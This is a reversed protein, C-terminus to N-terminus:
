YLYVAGSESASSNGEVPFRRAGGLDSPEATDGAALTKGDGSIAVSTWYSGLSWETGGLRTAAVTRGTKLYAAQAWGSSARKFVYLAGSGPSSTDAGNLVADGMRAASDELPAGAVLTQGDASLAVALGFRHNSRTNTGQVSATLQWGMADRDFVHVSGGGPAGAALVKGDASFALAAGFDTFPASPDNTAPSAIQVPMVWDPGQRTFVHIAGNTASDAPDSVALTQGDPAIAVARGFALSTSTTALASMPAWGSDELRSAFAGVGASTGAVVTRGDASVAVRWGFGAEAPLTSMGQGPRFSQELRYSAFWRRFVYVAGTESSEGQAGVVVTSGDASVAVSSGFRGNIASAPSNLTGNLVWQGDARAYVRVEGSRLPAGNPTSANVGVVLTDGDQSLAVASGFHENTVPADAKLFGMTDIVRPAVAASASSCGSGDCARVSFRADPLGYLEPPPTYEKTVRADGGPAAIDGDVPDAPLPGDGDPDLLLQYFSAGPLADWSFSYRKIGATFGLGAPAALTVAQADPPTPAVPPAAADDPAAVAPAEPEPPAGAGGGCAALILLSSACLCRALRLAVPSM